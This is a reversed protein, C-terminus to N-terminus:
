SPEYTSRDSQWQPDTALMEAFKSEIEHKPVDRPRLTSAGGIKLQKSRGHFVQFMTWAMSATWDDHPQISEEVRAYAHNLQPFNFGARDTPVNPETCEGDSIIIEEPWRTIVTEYLESFKV